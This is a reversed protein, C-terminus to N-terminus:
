SCGRQPHPGLAPSFHNTFPQLLEDLLHDLAADLEVIGDVFEFLSEDDADESAAFAAQGLRGVREPHVAVGQRPLHPFVLYLSAIASPMPGRSRKSKAM